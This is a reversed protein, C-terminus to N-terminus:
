SLTYGFEEELIALKSTDWEKGKEPILSSAYENGFRTMLEALGGGNSFVYAKALRSASKLNFEAGAPIFVTKGATLRATSSEIAFEFYGDVVQFCHHVHNFRVAKYEALMPTKHYYLGEISAISFKGGSQLRTILPQCVTGGLVHKPGSGNRLFYPEVGDPLATDSKERPQPNSSPHHPVPVM